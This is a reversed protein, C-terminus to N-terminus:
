SLMLAMLGISASLRTSAVASWYAALCATNPMSIASFASAALVGCAWSGASTFVSTTSTVLPEPLYAPGVRCAAANAARPVQRGGATGSGRQMGFAPVARAGYREARGAGRAAHAAKVRKEPECVTASWEGSVAAAGAGEGAEM